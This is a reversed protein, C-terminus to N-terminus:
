EVNAARLRLLENLRLVSSYDSYLPGIKFYKIGLCYTVRSLFTSETSISRHSSIVVQGGQQAAQIAQLTATVTGAQDPKMIIGHSYGQLIGEKIRGANSSYFNDGIIKCRNQGATTSKWMMYDIERFPDELYGIGYDRILSLWYEQFGEPTRRSGDTLTFQYAGDRWLDGASADIMLDYRSALGLNALIKILLELWVRNDSVKFRNVPNGNVLSLESSKLAARVSEQIRAHDELTVSLDDTRAVLLYESFESLVPNTYAHNGGNLINLCLAPMGPDNSILRKESAQFFALSLAFCNNRGFDKIRSVLYDDFGAQDFEASLCGDALIARIIQEPGAKDLSDEYIGITEGLPASGVGSKGEESKIVFEHTFGLHSNLIQRFSISDIKM